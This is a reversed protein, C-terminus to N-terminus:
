AAAGAKEFKNFTEVMKETMNVKEDGEIELLLPPVHPATRLLEMADGWQISGEGPWLHADRDQNNDHLHTSRIHEKMMEFSVRVGDTLHAHGIDFCLGVDTFHAVHLLEALKEASSLENPINELLVMVGLPKAFARLHEVATMAADFKAPSFSENSKGLHQILFRFPLHEAVEIARKIEDMAEIRMRKEPDVVNLPPATGRGTDPENHMPSHISHLQMNNDRFWVALERVHERSTYDFHQRAAFLEIAQAGGRVMQDLLGPHVRGRYFVYSSMGRLM